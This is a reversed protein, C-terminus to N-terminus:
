LNWSIGPTWIRKRCGPKGSDKEGLTYAEKLTERKGEHGLAEKDQNGCEMM